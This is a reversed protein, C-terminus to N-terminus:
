VKEAILEHSFALLHHQAKNGCTSGFGNPHRPMKQFEAIGASTLTDRDTDDDIM